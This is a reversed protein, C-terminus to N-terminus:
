GHKSAEAHYNDGSRIATDVHLGGRTVLAELEGAQFLHYFRGVRTGDGRTWPVVADPGELGAFRDQELAWCSFLARGGPVLVRRVERVAAVRDAEAPIHHLTATCLVADVSEPALPLRTAEALLLDVSEADELNAAARELLRPSVDAGLGSGGRSMHPRLHRGNGCGVDLLSAGPPLREVFAVVEAWPTRRTRDFEDAIADFAAQLGRWYPDRGSVPEEDM